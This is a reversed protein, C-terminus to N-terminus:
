LCLLCVSLCYMWVDMWGDLCVFVRYILYPLRAEHYRALTAILVAPPPRAADLAQPTVVNKTHSHTHTHTNLSFFFLFVVWYWVVAWSVKHVAAVVAEDECCLGPLSSLAAADSM